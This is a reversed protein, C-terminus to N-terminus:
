GRCEWAAYLLPWARQIKAANDADAIRLARAVFQQFEGYTGDLYHEWQRTLIEQVHVSRAYNRRWEGIRELVDVPEGM